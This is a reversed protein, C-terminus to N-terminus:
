GEHRPDRLLGLLLGFMPEAVEILPEVLRKEVLTPPVAALRCGRPHVANTRLGILAMALLVKVMEHLPELPLAGPGFADSPPVDRFPIALQARSSHGGDLSLPQLEGARPYQLGDVRLIDQPTAIPVPRVHSRQVGHIPQGNRTLEPPVVKPDFRVDLPEEVGDLMVPPPPPPCFAKFVASAPPQDARPEPRSHQLCIPLDQRWHRPCRLPTNDCGEERMHVPVLRKVPPKGVHDRWSTPAFRAQTAVRVIEPARELILGVRRPAGPLQAVPKAFEPQRQRRVLRPHDREGPLLPGAMGADVKQAKLKAPPSVPRALGVELAPCRALLPSVRELPDGLPAFRRTAVPQLIQAPLQVGLPPAVVVVIADVPVRGAPMLEEGTHPADQEFPAITATLPPAIRPGPKSVQQVVEPNLARV